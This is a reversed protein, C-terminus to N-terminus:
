GSAETPLNVRVARVKAQPEAQGAEFGPYLVFGLQGVGEDVPVVDQGLLLHHLVFDFRGIPLRGVLRNLLL